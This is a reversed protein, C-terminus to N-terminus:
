LKKAIIRFFTEDTGNFPAFGQQEKSYELKFGIKELRKCLKEFNIFRRYHNEWIYADNENEVKQGLQYIENKQGRAEICFIGFKLLVKYAWNIVREEQEESVSHLTFRSYIVDYINHNELTTFDACKFEINKTEINKQKLSAIEHECQDIAITGVNNKAFFVADRGNGCGLEILNGYGNKHLYNEYVFKAFLSPESTLKKNLYFSEWYNKDM